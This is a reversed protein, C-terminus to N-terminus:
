RLSIMVLTLPFVRFTFNQSTCHRQEQEWLYPKIHATHAGQSKRGRIHSGGM